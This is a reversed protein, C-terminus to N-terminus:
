RTCTDLSGLCPMASRLRRSISRLHSYIQPCRGGGPRYGGHKTAGPRSHLSNGARPYFGGSNANASLQQSVQAVTVGYALLKNPDLLVQYQMTLGGLGSDGAVGPVARFRRAVVWDEITKLEQASRDPSQLVYRYILGSPSFLPSIGPSVGQPVTANPIREFAQERVFYPDTGYEFNMQVSSLGYLSISRLSELQPIGNM